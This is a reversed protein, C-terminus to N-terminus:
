GEPGATAGVAERAGPAKGNTYPNSTKKNTMVRATANNVQESAPLPSCSSGHPGPGGWDQEASRGGAGRGWDQGLAGPPPVPAAAALRAAGGGGGRRHQRRWPAKAVGWSQSSGPGARGQVQSKVKM